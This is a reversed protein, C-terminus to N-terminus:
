RLADELRVGFNPRFSCRTPPHSSGSLSVCACVRPFLNRGIRESTRSCEASVEAAVRLISTVIRLCRRRTAGPNLTWASALPRPPSFRGSFSVGPHPPKSLPFWRFSRQKKQGFFDVIPTELHPVVGRLTVGFSGSPSIFAQALLGAESGLAVRRRPTDAAFLYSVTASIQVQVCLM